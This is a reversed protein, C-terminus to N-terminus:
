TFPLKHIFLERYNRLFDCAREFPHVAALDFGEVTEDNIVGNM